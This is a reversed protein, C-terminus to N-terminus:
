KNINTATKDFTNFHRSFLGYYWRFFRKVQITGFVSAIFKSKSETNEPLEEFSEALQMEDTGTDGNESRCTKPFVMRIVFQGAAQTLLDRM